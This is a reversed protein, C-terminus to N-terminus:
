YSTISSVVDFIQKTLRTLGDFSIWLRVSLGLVPTENGGELCKLFSQAGKKDGPQEEPLLGVGGRKGNLEWDLNRSM